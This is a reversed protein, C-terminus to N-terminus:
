YTGFVPTYGRQKAFAVWHENAFSRGKICGIFNSCYFNLIDEMQNDFEYYFEDKENYRKELTINRGGDDYLYMHSKAGTNLDAYWVKKERDYHISVEIGANLLIGLSDLVTNSFM